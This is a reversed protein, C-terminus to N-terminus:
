LGQARLVSFEAGNVCVEFITKVSARSLTFLSLFSVRAGVTHAGQQVIASDKFYGVITIYIYIYM